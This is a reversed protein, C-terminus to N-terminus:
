FGSELTARDVPAAQAPASKTTAAPAGKDSDKVEAAAAAKAPAAARKAAVQAMADLGAQARAAFSPVALMRQYRPRAQDYQGMVRYCDAAEMMAEQQPYTGVGGVSDFRGVAVQCGSHAKVSRGAWLAANKDGSKAADDFLRTAEPYSAGRYAAMGRTFPDDGVNGDRRGQHVGSGSQVQAMPPPAATAMARPPPSAPTAGRPAGAYPGANSPAIDLPDDVQALAKGLAPSEDEKKLKAAGGLDREARDDATAPSAVALSAAAAATATATATAVRARGEDVGHAKSGAPLDLRDTERVQAVPEGRESVTVVSGGSSHRKQLFLTTSGVMLLFLAAMATQPRMAWAGAWSVTRSIRSRIPIVKQAEAAAALIRAELDAPPEFLPLTALRRTARLGALIAACRACGSVHRRVAASTLEDLEEYLEDLLLPECKECDM